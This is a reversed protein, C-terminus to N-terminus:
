QQSIYLFHFFVGVPCYIKITWDEKTLSVPEIFRCPCLLPESSEEMTRDIWEINEIIPDEREQILSVLSCLAYFRLKFAKYIYNIFFQRIITITVHSFVAISRLRGFIIGFFFSVLVIYPILNRKEFNTAYFGFFFNYLWPDHSNM